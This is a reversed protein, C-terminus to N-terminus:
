RWSQIIEHAKATEKGGRQIYRLLQQAAADRQKLRNGLIVSDNYLVSLADPHSAIFDAYVKHADEFKGMGEMASGRGLAADEFDGDIEQARTFLKEADAYSHSQLYLAGLNVFPAATPPDTKVAKELYGLAAFRNSEQLALMALNNYLLSKWAFAPDKELMGFFYAALDKKHQRMYHVGLLFVAKKEGPNEALYKKLRSEADMSHGSTDLVSIYELYKSTDSPEPVKGEWQALQAEAIKRNPHYDIQEEGQLGALSQSCSSDADTDSGAAASTTGNTASMTSGTHSCHVLTPLTFLGALIWLASALLCGERDNRPALPSSAIKAGENSTSQKAVSAVVKHSSKRRNPKM